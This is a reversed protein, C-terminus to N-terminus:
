LPFYGDDRGTLQGSASLRILADRQLALEAPPTEFVGEFMTEPAPPPAKEVATVAASIAEKAEEVCTKEFEEDWLKRRALFVQFRRLPDDKEWEAVKEKPRYRTPDDSSSHPGMRFTLAEILTPGLGERARDAAAKTAAYVALVDNGDVRVGPIGYATAKIAITESRTQKEIPVSIAWQNNQCFFVVPADYVAGFNLGLHFGDSSTGGDGFFAIAISREGRYRMALAAGVAQPIRTGIPSSISVFNQPRLSYHCPMQRGSCADRGTGYVQHLMTELSAGRAIALGPIRYSPFIWDDKGLAFACGIQLGEEGRSPVYFGIRGQRQLNMGRDDFARTLVMLRYMERLRGDDLDPVASPSVRGDATLISLVESAM